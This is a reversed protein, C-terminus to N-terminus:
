PIFVRCEEADTRCTALVEGSLVVEFEDTSLWFLAQPGVLQLGYLNSGCVAPPQRQGSAADRLRLCHDAPFSRALSPGWARAEWRGSGSSFSIDSVSLTRDDQNYITFSTDDYILLMNTDSTEAEPESPVVTIATAQPQPFATVTALVLTVMPIETPPVPTSTPAATPPAPTFTPPPTATPIPATTANNNSLLPVLAVVLAAFATIIAALVQPSALSSKIQAPPTPDNNESM